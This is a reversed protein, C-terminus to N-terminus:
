FQRRAARLDLAETQRRTLASEASGGRLCLPDLFLRAILAFPVLVTFYFLTLLLRAQFDGIYHGLERWTEWFHIWHTKM